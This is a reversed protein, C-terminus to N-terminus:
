FCAWSCCTQLLVWSNSRPTVRRGGIYPSSFVYMSDVRSGVAWWGPGWLRYIATCTRRGLSSISVGMYNRRHLEKNPLIHFCTMVLFTKCLLRWTFIITTCLSASQSCRTGRLPHIPRRRGISHAGRKKQAPDEPLVFCM